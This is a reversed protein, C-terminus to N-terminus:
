YPGLIIKSWVWPITAAMAIMGSAACSFACFVGVVEKDNYLGYVGADKEM